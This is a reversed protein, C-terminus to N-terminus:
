LGGRKQTFARGVGGRSEELGNVVRTIGERLWEENFNILLGVKKGALRLYTLLQKKHVAAVGESAKIEVIVSDEILLDARFALHVEVPGYRAPVPVQRAVRFGRQELEYALVAEYVTELLGPGLEKHVKLAADVVQGTIENERMGM